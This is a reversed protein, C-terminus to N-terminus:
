SFYHRLAAPLREAEEEGAQGFRPYWDYLFMRLGYETAAEAPLRAEHDLYRSWELAHAARRRALAARTGTDLLHAEFEPFACCRRAFRSQVAV